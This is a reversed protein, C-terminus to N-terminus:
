CSKEVRQTCPRPGPPPTRTPAPPASSEQLIGLECSRLGQLYYIIIIPAAGLVAAHKQGAVDLKVTKLKHLLELTTRSTKTRGAFTSEHKNTSYM